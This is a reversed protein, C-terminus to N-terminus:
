GMLLWDCVCSLAAAQLTEKRRLRYACTEIQKNSFSILDVKQSQAKLIKRVLALPQHELPTPHAALLRALSYIPYVEVSTPFPPLSCTQTKQQWSGWRSISWDILLMQEPTAWAVYERLSLQQIVKELHEAELRRPADSIFLAADDDSIRIFAKDALLEKLETKSATLM